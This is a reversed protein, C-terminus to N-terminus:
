SEGPDRAMPLHIATGFAGIAEEVSLDNPVATASIQQHAIAAEGVQSGRGRGGRLGAIHNEERRRRSIWTTM